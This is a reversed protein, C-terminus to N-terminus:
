TRTAHRQSLIAPHVRPQLPRTILDGGCRSKWGALKLEVVILNSDNELDGAECGVLAALPRVCREETVQGPNGHSATRGIELSERL